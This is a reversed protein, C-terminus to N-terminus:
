TFNGTTYAVEYLNPNSADLLQKLRAVHNQFAPLQRVAETAELSEFVSVLVASKGDRGKYMRGGILGPFSKSIEKSFANQIQIFEELKGDKVAFQNIITVPKM